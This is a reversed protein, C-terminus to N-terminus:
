ETVEGKPVWFGRCKEGTWEVHDLQMDAYVHSERDMYHWRCVNDAEKGGHLGACLAGFIAGGFFLVFLATVERLWAMLM